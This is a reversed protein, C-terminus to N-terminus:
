KLVQNAGSIIGFFVASTVLTMEATKYM